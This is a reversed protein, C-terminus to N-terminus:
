STRRLTLSLLEARLRQSEAGFQEKLTRIEANMQEELKQIALELEAQTVSPAQPVPAPATHARTEAAAARAEAESGFRHVAKRLEDIRSKRIAPSTEPQGEVLLVFEAFTKSKRHRAFVHAPLDHEQVQASCHLCSGETRTRPVPKVPQIRAKAVPHVEEVKAVDKVV